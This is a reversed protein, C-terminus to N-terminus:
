VMWIMVAAVANFVAHAATAGWLHRHREVLGALAVGVLLLTTLLYAAGLATAGTTHVVAFVLASGGMALVARLHRRLARFLLGRFALEEALPAVIVVGVTAAVRSAPDTLARRASEQVTPPDLGFRDLVTELLPPLAVNLLVGAALGVAVGAGLQAASPRPGLLARVGGTGGRVMAWGLTVLGLVAGFILLGVADGLPGPVTIRAQASVLGGAIYALGFVAAVDVLGLGAPSAAAPRPAHPGPGAPPGATDPPDTDQNM